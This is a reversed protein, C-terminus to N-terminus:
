KKNNQIRFECMYFFEMFSWIIKYIQRESTYKHRCEGDTGVNGMVRSITLLYRNHTLYDPKIKVASFLTNKLKM